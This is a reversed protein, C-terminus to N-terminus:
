AEASQTPATTAASMEAVIQSLRNFEEQYEKAAREAFRQQFRLAEDFNRLGALQVWATADEQLRAQTFKLIEQSLDLVGRFWREFAQRNGELLSGIQEPAAGAAPRKRASISAVAHESM